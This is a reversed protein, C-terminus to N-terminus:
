LTVDVGGMARRAQARSFQITDLKQSMEEGALNNNGSQSGNNQQQANQQREGGQGQGQDKLSFSVDEFGKMGNQQMAKELARQDRQLLDLTESKEVTLHARMRGDDAIELKVDVRGLEPPDLRIEFATNGQSAQRAIHMGVTQVPIPQSTRQAMQAFEPKGAASTLNQSAAATKQLAGIESPASSSPAKTDVGAKALNSLAEAALPARVPADSKEAAPKAKPATLEAEVLEAEIASQDLPANETNEALVAGTQDLQLNPINQEAAKNATVKAGFAAELANRVETSFVTEGKGQLTMQSALAKQSVSSTELSQTQALVDAVLSKNKQGDLSIVPTKQNTEIQKQPNTEAAVPAAEKQGLQPTASTGTAAVATETAAKNGDIELTGEVALIPAVADIKGGDEGTAELAPLVGTEAVLNDSAVPAEVLLTETEADAGMGEEAQVPNTDGAEIMPEQESSSTDEALAAKTQEKKALASEKINQSADETAQADAHADMAQERKFAAKENAKAIAAENANTNSSASNRRADDERQAEVRKAREQRESSQVQMHDDFRGTERNQKKPQLREAKMDLVAATNSALIKQNQM